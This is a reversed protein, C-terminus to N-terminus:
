LGKLTYNQIGIGLIHWLKKYSIFYVFYILLLTRKNYVGVYVYNYVNVTYM